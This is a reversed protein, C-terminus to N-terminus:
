KVEQVRFSATRASLEDLETASQALASKAGQARENANNVSPKIATLGDRTLDTSLATQIDQLYTIVPLLGNQAEDYRGNVQDFHNSVEAKRAESLSRTAPDQITPIEKEWVALYAARRKWMRNVERETRRTSAVLRNLEQEFKLFQPKADAAPQNVLDNLAQLTADLQQVEYQVERASAQSNWSASDSKKYGTNHCGTLWVVALALIPLSQLRRATEMLKNTNM